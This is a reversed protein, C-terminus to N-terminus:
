QIVAPIIYLYYLCLIVSPITCLITCNHLDISLFKFFILARSNLKKHPVCGNRWQGTVLLCLLQLLKVLLMCLVSMIM